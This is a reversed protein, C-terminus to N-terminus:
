GSGATEQELWAQPIRAYEKSGAGTPVIVNDIVAVQQQADAAILLILGQLESGNLLEDRLTQLWSTVLDYRALLGPESLLVPQACARLEAAMGPLARQILRLLNLWDRSGPEAADARLVLDWPPPKTMAACVQHMHNLLLEDFSIRKVRPFATSLRESAQEMYRPPVTLALFRRQELANNIESVFRTLTQTDAVATADHEYSLGSSTRTSLGYVLSALHEPQCYAGRETTGSESQYEYDANWSLGIDLAEIWQDLLPQEPLPQALPYRGAIRDRLEAITLVRAGLLAGQALILARQAEM